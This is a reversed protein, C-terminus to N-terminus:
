TTVLVRQDREVGSRVEHILDIQGKTPRVLVEPDVLGTPSSGSIKLAGSERREYPRPTASVFVRQGVREWFEDFRLPQNDMASPLRFGHEVLTM